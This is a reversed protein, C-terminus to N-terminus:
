GQLAATPPTFSTGSYRALGKTIRVDSYYSEALGSLSASSGLALYKTTVNGFTNGSTRHAIRSGDVYTSLNTGDYVTAVHQWTATTFAGGHNFEYDTRGSGNWWQYFLTAAGSYFFVTFQHGSSGNWGGFGGGTQPGINAANVISPLYQWWEMTFPEGNFGLDFLGENNTVRIYDGTGDFYLSSSLYKSQATSSKTNGTLALDKISQAKDIIGADTGNILLSTNTIATLPATPPTFNSTYVSSGRVVRVDAINGNCYINNDNSAGIRYTTIANDISSSGLSTNTSGAQTGNIFARLNAGDRTVAVHVWQNTPFTGSEFQGDIVTGGSHRIFFRVKKSNYNVNLSWSGVGDAYRLSGVIAQNATSTTYVWAEVCFNDAALDLSTQPMHLYDGSGDFYMSGGHSGASYEQSDYPAFSVTKTNGNITIAHGNTSGDAIYPLHCTLLSTNTIATLPATPASFNSTYVADKVIRADTIHGQFYRAAGQAGIDVDSGYTSSLDTSNTSSGDNVGNVYIKASNDSSNRVVAVHYWQNLEYTNTTDFSMQWSGGAYGIRFNFKKNNTYSLWVANNTGSWILMLVDGAVDQGVAAPYCWCEMTVSGTGALFSNDPGVDLRDGSGDFYTSYGGHRYPSFTTQTANGAVTITHSNTSSDVFTNNVQNNTGVSTILATTYNSNEVSFQLTFESVASAINVGDSARFTLSFTGADANNTSPTITFVNTSAGTGQVVTATNGSTDSAISYTIPLGEPDTATITIVTATGDIALAYSSSVGSITPNTNILAINYWGTGTWLYLRNTATVFALDGANASGPLQDATAYVTVGSQDAFELATGGSNVKAIQGATGLTSPTDSLGTFSTSVWQSSDTYIYMVAESSSWWLDGASPSTPATESVTVSAGGSAGGGGTPNSQVWQNATGDNYYVFTKLVSPDFWLDGESPNTPATESVTVSAGGAGGSIVTTKWAGSTSNYTYTVNNVTVTDGNSPSNPFNYAM